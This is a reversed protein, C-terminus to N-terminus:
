IYTVISCCCRMHHTGVEVHFVRKLSKWNSLITQSHDRSSVLIISICNVTEEMLTTHRRATERYSHKIHVNSHEFPSGDILGLYKISTVDEYLYDLLQFKLTSLVREFNPARVEVVAYTVRHVGKQLSESVKSLQGHQTDRMILDTYHRSTLPCIHCHNENDYRAYM